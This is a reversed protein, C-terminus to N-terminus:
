SLHLLFFLMSVVGPFLLLLKDKAFWSKTFTKREIFFGSAIVFMLWYVIAPTPGLTDGNKLVHDLYLGCFAGLLCSFAIGTQRQYDPTSSSPFQDAMRMLEESYYSRM